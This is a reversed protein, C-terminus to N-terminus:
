QCPPSTTSLLPALLPSSACHPLATPSTRTYDTCSSSDKDTVTARVGLIRWLIAAMLISIAALALTSKELAHVGSWGVAGGLLTGVAHGATVAQETATLAAGYGCGVTEALEAMITMSPAGM